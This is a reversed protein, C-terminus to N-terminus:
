AYHPSVLFDLYTMYYFNSLPLYEETSAALESFM